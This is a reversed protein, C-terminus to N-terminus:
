RSIVVLALRYINGETGVTPITAPPASYGSLILRAQVSPHQREEMLAARAESSTARLEALYVELM